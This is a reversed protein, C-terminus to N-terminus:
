PSYVVVEVFFKHQKHKATKMACFTPSFNPHQLINCRANDCFRSIIVVTPSGLLGKGFRQGFNTYHSFGMNMLFTEKIPTKKLNIINKGQM